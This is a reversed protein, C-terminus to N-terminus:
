EPSTPTAVEDLEDLSNRFQEILTDLAPEAVSENSELPKALSSEYNLYGEVINSADALTTDIIALSRRIRDIQHLSPSTLVNDSTLWKLDGISQQLKIEGKRLLNMVEYPMEDLEVSYTISVRQSM